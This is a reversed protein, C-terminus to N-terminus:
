AAVAAPSNVCKGPVPHKSSARHRPGDCLWLAMQGGDMEPTYIHSLDRPASHQGAALEESKGARLLCIVNIVFQIVFVTAPVWFVFIGNRVFRGDKFFQV